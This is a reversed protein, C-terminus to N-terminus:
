QEEIKITHTVPHVAKSCNELLGKHIDRFGAEVAKISAEKSPLSRLLNPEKESLYDKLFMTEFAQKQEVAKNVEMFPKVFPNKLFEAALNIGAALQEATFVKSQEGWTIRARPSKLSKVILVYRNLDKNFPLFPLIAANGYHWNNLGSLADAKDADLSGNFFCFPYRHSEVVIRDGNASVIRHGDSATATGNAADYTITGINGDFGMARLFGYAMVLHGQPEGHVGDNSGPVPYDQGFKAKAKIMADMMPTHLDAFLMGNAQAVQKGVAVLRELTQNFDRANVNRHKPNKFYFPDVAGPSGIIVLRTNANKFTEVIKTLGSRYNKETEPNVIDYGSDNMGYSTTAVTPFLTLVDNKMHGAFHQATDGGWGFQMTKIGAVGQCMLLYDEIYVSYVKQETISDGCILLADDTKFVPGAWLLGAVLTSAIFPLVIMRRIM